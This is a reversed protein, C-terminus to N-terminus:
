RGVLADDTDRMLVSETALTATRCSIMCVEEESSFSRVQQLQATGVNCCVLKQMM